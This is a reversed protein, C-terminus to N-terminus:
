SSPADAEKNFRARGKRIMDATNEAATGLFLHDPRVCPPNDCHHCVFLGDPIAGYTLRYAARHAREPRQHLGYVVGYRDRALQGTWLWCGSGKTVHAWFATAWEEDTRAPPGPRRGREIMLQPRSIRPASYMHDPNCCLPRQCRRYVEHGEPIAGFALQYAARHTYIPRNSRPPVGVWGYGNRHTGGQWIWCGTEPDPRVRNWFRAPWDTTRQPHM